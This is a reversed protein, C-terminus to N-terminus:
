RAPIRLTKGVQLRREDVGPNAARLSELSVAYRRSISSLTDGRAITHTRASPVPDNGPTRNGRPAQPSEATIGPRGAGGGPFAATQNSLAVLANSYQMRLTELERRLEENRRSLNMLEREATRPLSAPLVSQALEQKCAHLLDKVIDARDSAPRLQLFKQFHYIATAYDAGTREHLLGLELHAAANGPNALLAREFLQVAGPVDGANSRSKAEVFLPDKEEEITGARPPECGLLLLLLLCTAGAILRSSIV